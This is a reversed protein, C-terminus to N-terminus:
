VPASVNVAGNPSLSTLVLEVPATEKGEEKGTNHSLLSSGCIQLSIFPLPTFMCSQLIM